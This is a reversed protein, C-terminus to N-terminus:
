KQYNLNMKKYIEFKTKIEEQDMERLKKERKKVDKNFLASVIRVIWAVFIFYPYKEVWPYNECMHAKNPFLYM